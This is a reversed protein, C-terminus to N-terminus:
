EGTTSVTISGLHQMNSSAHQPLQQQQPQKSPALSTAMSTRSYFDLQPAGSSAIVLAEKNIALSAVACTATSSVTAVVFLLAASEPDVCVVSGNSCGIYAGEPAWAHCVACMGDPLQVMSQILEHRSWLKELRWFHLLTNSSSVGGNSGSKVCGAISRPNTIALLCSMDAPHFSVVCVEHQLAAAALLLGQLHM